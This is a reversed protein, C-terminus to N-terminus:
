CVWVAFCLIVFGVFSGGFPKAAAWGEGEVGAGGAYVSLM